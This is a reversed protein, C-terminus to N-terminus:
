NNIFSTYINKPLENNTEPMSINLSGLTTQTTPISVNSNNM